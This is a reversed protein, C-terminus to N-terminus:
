NGLDLKHISGVGLSEFLKLNGELRKSVPNLETVCSSESEISFTLNHSGGFVNVATGDNGYEGCLAIYDTGKAEVSLPVIPIKSVPYMKLLYGSAPIGIQLSLKPHKGHIGVSRLFSHCVNENERSRKCGQRSRIKADTIVSTRELLLDLRVQKSTKGLEASLDSRALSLTHQHNVRGIIGVLSCKFEKLIAPKLVLELCVLEVLKDVGM